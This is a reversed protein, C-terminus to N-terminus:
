IIKKMAEAQRSKDIIVFRGGQGLYNRFIDTATAVEAAAFKGTRDEVEMVALKPVRQQASLITGTLVLIFLLSQRFM